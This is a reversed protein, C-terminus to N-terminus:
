KYFLRDIFADPDYRSEALTGWPSPSSSTGMPGGLVFGFRTVLFDELASPSKLYRMYTRNLGIIPDTFDRVWSPTLIKWTKWRTATRGPYILQLAAKDGRVFDGVLWKAMTDLKLMGALKGMLKLGTGILKGLVLGSAWTVASDFIMHTLGNCFDGTTLGARVTNTVTLASGSPGPIVGCQLQPNVLWCAGVALRGLQTYVTGSAFEAKSSSGIIIQPMLANAFVHGIHPGSDHGRAVAYGAGASVPNRRIPRDPPAKMAAAELTEPSLAKSTGHGFATRQSLGVVWVMPHPLPLPLAPPPPPVSLHIDSGFIPQNTNLCGMPFGPM